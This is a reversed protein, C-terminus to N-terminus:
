RFGARSDTHDLFRLPTLLSLQDITLMLSRGSASEGRVRKTVTEIEGADCLPLLILVSEDRWPLLPLVGTAAHRAVELSAASGGAQVAIAPLAPARRRRHRWALVDLAMSLPDSLPRIRSGGIHRWTVPVEAIEFGLRHATSLIDVDFTFRELVLFHFLLRAVPTRFAKFGCQTDHLSIDTAVSVLHNFARGMLSRRFLEREASSDALTRSGIAVEAGGLAQQLRGLQRPDVAADADLFAVDKSSAVTIGARVAAGKGANSPLSIVQSHAFDALARRAREATEDKSGDDVVILESSALDFAGAEGAERIREIGSTIRTAENYAPLVISLQAGAPTGRDGAARETGNGPAAEMDDTRQRSGNGAPSRGLASGKLVNATRHEGVEAPAPSLRRDSSRDATWTSCM